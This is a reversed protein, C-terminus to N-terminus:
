SQDRRPAHPGPLLEGIRGSWWYGILGIWEHMATDSQALGLSVRSFPKLADQWGRTRWDVPYAEVDFGVARFVGIARPMHSASTVLLWRQGPAPKVLDRVDRANEYTTRSAAEITIRDREVGFQELLRGAFPAGAIYPPLLDSSGGTYIIRPKPFQRALQLMALVREGASNLEIAGRAESIDPRIAGGLVIIGDPDRGGAQWAPFRESLGLMLVNGIPAYGFLLLALVACIATRRGARPWGVLWLLVAGVGLVAIWNSPYALWGLVKSAEFSM